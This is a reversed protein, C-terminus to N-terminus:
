AVRNKRGARNASSIHKSKFKTDLIITIMMNISFLIFSIRFMIQSIYKPDIRENYSVTFRAFIASVLLALCVNGILVRSVKLFKKM